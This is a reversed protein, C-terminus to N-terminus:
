QGPEVILLQLPDWTGLAADVEVQASALRDQLRQDAVVQGDVGLRNVVIVHWGFETEVPGVPVGIEAEDVAQAFPPVYRTSAACGLDGGIPASPGTSLEIALQAFEEGGDLRTLIDQAEAETVVLIHSVCPAENEPDPTTSIVDALSEQAAQYQVLFDLYPAENYLREADATPDASAPYLTEIQLLMARRADALAEDSVAGGVADLEVQTAEYALWQSLVGTAFGIPPVGRFVLNVFDPSEQTPVLVSNLEGHTIEWTSDGFNATLALDNPAGTTPPTFEEAPVTTPPPVVVSNGDDGGDDGSADGGTADDAGAQVNEASVVDESNREVGCAALGIAFLAVLAAIRKM